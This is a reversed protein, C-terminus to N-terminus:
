SSSDSISAHYEVLKEYKKILNPVRKSIIQCDGDSIACIPDPHCEAFVGDYGFPISAFLYKEALQRDGGTFEGKARQTSHTCDLIVKDYHKSMEEVAGFDVILQTYGFFTGRECIWVEASKNYSRAKNVFHKTSAPNIWQGKKINIKNFHEGAAALLDTQRCLFAPIQILDVIDALKEAQWCEHIDTTLRINPYKSKLDKMLAIGSELGPGRKGHLATRNAKDFSAKYYWNKGNMTNYLIDAVAFYNEKSEMSCPGLIFTKNSM